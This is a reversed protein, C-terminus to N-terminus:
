TPIGSSRESAHFTGLIGERVYQFWVGHVCKKTKKRTKRVFQIHSAHKNVHGRRRNVPPEKNEKNDVNSSVVYPIDGSSSRMQSVPM